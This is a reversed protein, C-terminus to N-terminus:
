QILWTCTRPHDELYGYDELISAWTLDNWTPGKPDLWIEEWGFPESTNSLYIASIMMGVTSPKEFDPSFVVQSTYVKDIIPYDVYQSILQNAPYKGNVTNKKRLVDQM